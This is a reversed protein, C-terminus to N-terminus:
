VNNQSERDGTLGKCTEIHTFNFKVINQNCNRSKPLVKEGKFGLLMSVFQM